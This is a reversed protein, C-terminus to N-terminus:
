RGHSGSAWMVKGGHAQDYVVLNGDTQVVLDYAGSGCTSPVASNSAWLVGGKGAYLVLNGDTQMSLHASSGKGDTDTKWLVKRPSAAM